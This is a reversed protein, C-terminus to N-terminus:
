PHGGGIAAALAVRAYERFKADFDETARYEDSVLEGCDEFFMADAAREVMEPTVVLTALQPNWVCTSTPLSHEHASGGCTACIWNYLWNNM